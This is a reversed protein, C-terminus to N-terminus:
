RGPSVAFTSTTMPGIAAPWRWSSTASAMATNWSRRLRAAARSWAGRPKPYWTGVRQTLREVVRTRELDDASPPVVEVLVSAGGFTMAWSTATSLVAESEETQDVALLLTPPGSAGSPHYLPGFLLVPAVQSGLM